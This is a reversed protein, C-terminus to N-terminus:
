PHSAARIDAPIRYVYIDGSGSAAAYLLSDGAVTMASADRDLQLVAKLRGTWDFLHVYAAAVSVGAGPTADTRHGSFLAYLRTSTAACDAYYRRHPFAAHWSGDNLREFAGNTPFPVNAHAVAHGSRDFIDIRGAGIFLEAFRGAGQSLCLEVGTSPGSRVRAPISDAGLLPAPLTGISKGTIDIFTIRDTDMEGLGVLTDRNLWVVRL